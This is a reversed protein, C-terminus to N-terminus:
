PNDYAVIVDKRNCFINDMNKKTIHGKQFAEQVLVNCAYLLYQGDCPEWKITQFM